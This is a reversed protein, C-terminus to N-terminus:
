KLIWFHSVICIVPCKKSTPTAAARSNRARTRVGGSAELESSKSSKIISTFDRVSTAVNLLRSTAVDCRQSTAINGRRSTAAQPMNCQNVWRRSTPVARRPSKTVNPRQSTGSRKMCLRWISWFQKRCSGKQELTGADVGFM